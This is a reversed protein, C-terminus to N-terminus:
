EHRLASIPDVKLARRAPVLAAFAAITLVSLPLVVFAAPDYFPMGQLLDSSGPSVLRAHLVWSVAMAGSVGLLIAAAIWPMDDTVLSRLIGRASAGLAVRIGIERTRQGVAHAMVGYIGVLSLL